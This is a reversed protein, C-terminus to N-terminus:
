DQIDEIHITGGEEIRRTVNTVVEQTLLSVTEHIRRSAAASNGEVALFAKTMAVAIKTPDFNTVKGNRRIVRLQGPTTVSIEAAASLTDIAVQQSSSSIETEASHQM